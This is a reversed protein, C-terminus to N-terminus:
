ERTLAVTVISRPPVRVVADASLEGLLAARELGDFVTRTIASHALEARVESAIGLDARLDDAGPNILVITLARQDPALWASGLLDTSGSSAEVRVWGPDTHKAFHLLAYYPLQAELVEDTMLFLSVDAVESILSVLDNQVYAAAGAHVLVHHALVATDLGGARMESQLLPRDLQAAVDRAAELAAIDVADADMDYLHLAVAGIAAADLATAYVGVAGLGSVEPAALQPVVTLGALADRVAILAERYGPYESSEEPLFRCAENPSGEPPSWNPNNQISVYDPAIGAGAYADLSERWFRAFAEYDFGGGPLARLTCTEPSGACVRADNAKLAAPPTGSTMFLVPARGLREEAASVIERAPELPAGEASEYRNRLRIVDLGAEEFALDYLATKSPNAVIADDAFSLSAGFGVLTQYRTDTDIAVLVAPAGIPACVGDICSTGDACSAECRPLCLGQELAGGCFAIPGDESVPVCSAGELGACSSDSECASTCVGCLCELEGCDEASDCVVLWNTQSGTQPAKSPSCAMFALGLALWAARTM